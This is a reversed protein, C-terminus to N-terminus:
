SLISNLDQPHPVRFVLPIHTRGTTRVWRYAETESEAVFIVQGQEIVVTKGAYQSVLEEMHEALWSEYADLEAVEV